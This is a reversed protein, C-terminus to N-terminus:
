RFSFPGAGARPKVGDGLTPLLAVRLTENADVVSRATPEGVLLDDGMARAVLLACDLQNATVAVHLPTQNNNNLLRPDAKLALLVAVHVVRGHAASVHLITNGDDDRADIRDSYATVMAKFVGPDQALPWLKVVRGGDGLGQGVALLLKAVEPEKGRAAEEMASSRLDDDRAHVDRDGMACIAATTAYDGSAAAWAVYSVGPKPAVRGRFAGVKEASGKHCARVLLASVDFGPPLTDVLARVMEADRCDIADEALDAVLEAAEAMQEGNAVRPLHAALCRVAWTLGMRTARVLLAASRFASPNEERVYSAIRDPNGLPDAEVQASM